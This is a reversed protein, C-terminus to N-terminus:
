TGPMIYIEYVCKVFEVLESLYTKVSLAILIHSGVAVSMHILWLSLCSLSNCSGSESHSRSLQPKYAVSKKMEM